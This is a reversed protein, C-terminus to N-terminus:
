GVLTVSSPTAQPHTRGVLTVPSPTAQPHNRSVLTVPSPIAQPHPQGVLTVSSPTAQPHPRGVLNVSSPIAQPHTLQGSQRHHLPRLTPGALVQPHPQGILNGPLSTVQHHLPSVLNDHYLPWSKTELEKRGVTKDRKNM